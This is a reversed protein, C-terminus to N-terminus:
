KESVHQKLVRQIMLAQLANLNDLPLVVSVQECLQRLTEREKGSIPQLLQKEVNARKESDTSFPKLKEEKITGLLLDTLTPEIKSIADDLAMQETTKIADQLSENNITKEAVVYTANGIVYEPAGKSDETLLNVEWCIVIDSGVVRTIPFLPKSYIIKYM